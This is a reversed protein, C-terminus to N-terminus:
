QDSSWISEIERLDCAWWCYLARGGRDPGEFRLVLCEPIWLVDEDEVAVSPLSGFIFFAALLMTTELRFEDADVADVAEIGSIRRIAV